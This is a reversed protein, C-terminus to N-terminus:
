DANPDAKAALLLKVADARDFAAARMLATRDNAPERADVDVGQALGARLGGLDHCEIYATLCL